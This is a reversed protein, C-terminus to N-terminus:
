STTSVVHSACTTSVVMVPCHAHHLLAQSVSGLLMGTFGGRGRAGVVTLVAERSLDVLAGAAHGSLVREEIPLDPHKQRWGALAENLLRLGASTDTTGFRASLGQRIVHVALLRGGRRTAEEVGIGIAAAGLPSGDVGVVVLEEERTSVEGRVVVVPCHSCSVLQITTSGVVAGAIPGSGRTGLVVWTARRSEDELTPLAFDTRVATTVEVGPAAERAAEAADALVHDAHTRLGREPGMRWMGSPVHLLPWAFAHVLRVPLNRRQAEGAAWRAAHFAGASEDIGVVLPSADNPMDDGDRGPYPRPTVEPAPHM